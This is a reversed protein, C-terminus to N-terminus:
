FDSLLFYFESYCIGFFCSNVALFIYLSSLPFITIALTGGVAGATTLHLSTLPTHDVLWGALVRGVINSLGIVAILLAARGSSIGREIAMDPLFAFVVGFGVCLWLTASSYLAFRRDKFVSFSLSPTLAEWIQCCRSRSEVDRHTEEEIHEQIEVCPEVQTYRSEDDTHISMDNPVKAFQLDTAVNENAADLTVLIPKLDPAPMNTTTPRVIPRFVLSCAVMNLALAGEIALTGRWGFQDILWRTLPAFAMAGVGSGCSSLGMALARRKVFYQPIVVVSVM